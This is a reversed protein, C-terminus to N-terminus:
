LRLLRQANKISSIIQEQLVDVKTEEENLWKKKEVSLIKGNIIEDYDFRNNFGKMWDMMDKHSDELRKKAQTHTASVKTSDTNKSLRSVLSGIISMQQMLKNHTAIVKEMQIIEKKAKKEEKCSIAIAMISVFVLIMKKM